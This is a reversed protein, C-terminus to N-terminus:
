IVRKPEGRKMEKRLIHDVLLPIDEKREKLPPMYFKIVNIRYHLDKRFGGAKVEEQFNKNTAFFFRAYIKRITTKEIRRLERKEIIRLIKAQLFLPM